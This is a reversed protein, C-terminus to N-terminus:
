KRFLGAIKIAREIDDKFIVGVLRRKDTVPLMPANQNMMEQLVKNSPTRLSVAKVIKSLDKVKTRGWKSRPIGAIDGLNLAKRNRGRSSVLVSTKRELIMKEAVKRISDTPKVVLYKKSMLDKLQVKKLATVVLLSQYESTAGLAIFVAIIMVWIGGIWIPGIQVGGLIAVIFLAAALWLSVIRAVNTAKVYDFKLALLGRLIRGGDLPFAPLLLNFAGLIANAYFVFDFIVEFFPLATAEGGLFEAIWYGLPHNILISILFLIGCVTFNFFPGALAMKIETKPDMESVDMMAVGGIAILLIKKVKIGYRMAVLSHSLEHLTVFFFIILWLFAILLEGYILGLLFIGGILLLFSWHLEIDIGFVSLIKFSPAM